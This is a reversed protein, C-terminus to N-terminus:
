RPRRVEPGHLDTTIRHALGWFREMPSTVPSGSPRYREVLRAELPQFANWDTVITFQLCDRVLAYDLTGADVMQGILAYQYAFSRCEFDEISDDFDKWASASAKAVAQHMKWRREAFDASTLQEMMSFAITRRADKRTAALNYAFLSVSIVLALDAAIAVWTAVDSLTVGREEEAGSSLRRTAIRSPWRGQLSGTELSKRPNRM